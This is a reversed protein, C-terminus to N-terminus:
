PRPYWEWPFWNHQRPLKHADFQYRSQYNCWDDPPYFNKAAFYGVVLLIFPTAIFVTLCLKKFKGKPQLAFYAFAAIIVAFFAATGWPAFTQALLNPCPPPSAFLNLGTIM